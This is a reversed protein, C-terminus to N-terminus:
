AEVEEVDTEEEIEGKVDDPKESMLIENIQEVLKEHPDLDAIMRMNRHLEYNKFEIEYLKIEISDFFNLLHNTTVDIKVEGDYRSITLKIMKSDHRKSYKETYAESDQGVIEVDVTDNLAGKGMSMNVKSANFYKSVAEVISLVGNMTIM